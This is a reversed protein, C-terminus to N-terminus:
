CSLRIDRSLKPGLDGTMHCQLIGNFWFKDVTTLDIKRSYFNLDSENGITKFLSINKEESLATFKAYILSVATSKSCSKTGNLNTELKNLNYDIFGIKYKNSQAPEKLIAMEYKTFLDSKNNVDNENIFTHSEGNIQYCMSKLNKRICLTYNTKNSTYDTEIQFDMHSVNIVDTIDALWIYNDTNENADIPWHSFIGVNKLYKDTAYTMRDFNIPDATQIVGNSNTPFNNLLHISISLGAILFIGLISLFDIILNFRSKKTDLLWYVLIMLVLRIIVVAIGVSAKVVSIITPEGDRCLTVILNLVLLPIDEFVIVLFNSLSQTLFPLKKIKIIDDANQITEIIFSMVSICCFVFISWRIKSEPPGYVLGPEILEVKVYFYWDVILNIM